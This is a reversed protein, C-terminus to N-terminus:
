WGSEQRAGGGGNTTGGVDAESGDYRKEGIQIQIASKM